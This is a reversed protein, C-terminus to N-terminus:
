PSKKRLLDSLAEGDTRGSRVRDEIARARTDLVAPGVDLLRFPEIEEFSDDNERWRFLIRAKPRGDSVGEVESM